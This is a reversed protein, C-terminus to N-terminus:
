ATPHIHCQVLLAVSVVLAIASAVATAPAGWRTESPETRLRLIGQRGLTYAALGAVFFAGSAAGHSLLEVLAALGLFLALASEMLQTPIRRAGVRQDSSWVGWRSATLPGSCCGAFFCGVRGVALGLLLGPTTADLYVGVQVPSMALLIAATVSAGVIFGQICWGEFRRETRHKLIFWAKAGVVGVAIAALSIAWVPRVGLHASAMVLSQILLALAMGLAVMTVWILPLTGPVHVFPASRTRIPIASAETPAATPAWRQWLRMARGHPEPAPSTSVQRWNRVRRVQHASGSGLERATVLWEGANVGRIRATLAIPGSGPVVQAITEDHVFQDGAHCKGVVGVRHGVFRITVDYRDPRQAPEFWYTVALIEQAAQELLTTFRGGSGNENTLSLPSSRLSETGMPHADIVTQKSM